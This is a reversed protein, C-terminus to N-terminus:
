QWRVVADRALDNFPESVLGHQSLSVKFVAGDAMPQYTASGYTMRILNLERGYRNLLLWADLYTSTELAFVTQGTQQQQDISYYRGQIRDMRYAPKIQSFGLIDPWKILRADMQWQDGKLAYSKESGDSLVLAASYEQKGLQKFSITALHKSQSLQRYSLVDFATLAFILTLAIFVLGVMGRVWGFLWGSRLLLKSAIVLLLLAIFAIVGSIITFAM